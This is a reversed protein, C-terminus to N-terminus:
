ITIFNVRGKNLTALQIKRNLGYTLMDPRAKLIKILSLSPAKTSILIAELPRAVLCYGILQGLSKLDLSTIKAEIFGVAKQKELFGVVDPRIRYKDCYDFVELLDRNKNKLFLNLNGASTDFTYVKEKYKKSLYNAFFVTLPQYMAKEALEKESRLKIKSEKKIPKAREAEATLKNRIVNFEKEIIRPSINSELDGTLPFCEPRKAKSQLKRLYKCGFALNIQWFADFHRRGAEPIRLDNEGPHYAKIKGKTIKSPPFWDEKDKFVTKVNHKILEQFLAQKSSIRFKFEQYYEPFFKIQHERSWSTPRTNYFDTLNGDRINPHGWDITHIPLSFESRLFNDIEVPLYWNRVIQFYVRMRGYGNKGERNFWGGPSAFGSTDLLGNIFEIKSNKNTSYISKPIHFQDFNTESSFNKCIKNFLSIKNKFDLVLITMSKNGTIEFHAPIKSKLLPIIEKKLSEITSKPQNYIKRVSPSVRHGCEPNKCKLGSGNDTAFWGCIQCYAIGKAFENAHSFEIAISKSDYFIHGRGTILGLLYAVQKTM